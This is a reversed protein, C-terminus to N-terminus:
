RRSPAAMLWLIGALVLLLLKFTTEWGLFTQGIVPLSRLYDQRQQDKPEYYAPAYGGITEVLGVIWPVVVYAVVLVTFILAM